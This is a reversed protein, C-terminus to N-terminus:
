TKYVNKYPTYRIITATAGDGGGSSDSGDYIDKTVRADQFLKKSRNM